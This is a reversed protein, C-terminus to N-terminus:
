KVAGRFLEMHEYFFEARTKLAAPTLHFCKSYSLHAESTSSHKEWDTPMYGNKRSNYGASKNYFCAKIPNRSAIQQLRNNIITIFNTFDPQPTFNDKVTKPDKSYGPVYMLYAFSIVHGSEEVYEILETIERIVQEPGVNFDLLFDVVFFLM